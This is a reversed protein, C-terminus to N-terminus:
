LLAKVRAWEDPIMRVRFFRRIGRSRRLSRTMIERVDEDSWGAWEGAVSLLNASFAPSVEERLIRELEDPDYPSDRLCRAISAIDADTQETDLFLTSLATWVPMREEFTAPSLM